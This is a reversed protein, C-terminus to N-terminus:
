SAKYPYSLEESQDYLENRFTKQSVMYYGLPYTISCSVNRVCTLVVKLVEQCAEETGNKKYM